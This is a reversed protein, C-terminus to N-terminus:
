KKHYVTKKTANTEKIQNDWDILKRKFKSTKKRKDLTPPSKSMYKIFLFGIQITIKTALSVSETDINYVNIEEYDPVCVGDRIEMFLTDLSFYVSQDDNETKVYDFISKNKILDQWNKLFGNPVNEKCLDFLISCPGIDGYYFKSEVQIHETECDDLNKSKWNYGDRYKFRIRNFKKFRLELNELFLSHFLKCTLIVKNWEFLSFNRFILGWIEKPFM